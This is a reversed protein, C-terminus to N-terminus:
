CRLSTPRVSCNFDQVFAQSLRQASPTCTVLGKATGRGSPSGRVDTESDGDTVETPESTVKETLDGSVKHVAARHM